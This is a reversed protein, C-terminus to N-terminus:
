ADEETSLSDTVLPIDALKLELLPRNRDDGLSELATQYALRANMRDGKALYVDGRTESWTAQQGIAPM